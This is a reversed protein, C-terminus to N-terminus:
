CKNWAEQRKLYRQIIWGYKGVPVEVCYGDMWVVTCHDSHVPNKDLWRNYEREAERLLYIGQETLLETLGHFLEYELRQRKNIKEHNYRSYSVYYESVDDHISGPEPRDNILFKSTDIM